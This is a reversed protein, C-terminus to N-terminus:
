KKEIQYPAYIEEISKNKRSPVTIQDSVALRYIFVVKDLDSNQFAGALAERLELIQQHADAGFPSFNQSQTTLHKLLTLSVCIPQFALNNKTAILWIKEMLLGAELISQNSKDQVEIFGIAASSSYLAQYYNQFAFGKKWRRLQRAVLPESLVAFATQMAQPLQLDGLKLGWADVNNVIGKYFDRHMEPHLLAIKEARGLHLALNKISSEDEILVNTLINSLKIETLDNKFTTPLDTKISPLRNTKRLEIENSFNAISKESKRFAIQALLDAEDAHPFWLVQTEFGLSLGKQIINEIAAGCSLRQYAMEPDLLNETGVFRLLLNKGFQQLKWAQLNGFSPAKEAAEVLTLLQEVELDSPLEALKNETKLPKPYTITESTEEFLLEKKSDGILEDIDVYFRGSGTFDNLLMRRSVDATIGGGMTVASALQPWTTITQQMELMSARLKPSTTSLGLIDFMYPIKEENTTLSKLKAVDLHDLIGHLIPRNPELDFREVDVMCRDSAEMIVPVQLERAKYRALVKIDFGDSEEVVLDLKGGDLFFADMNEETLGEPFCRIKIYPDLEAIERAVSYVKLQGLNQVGTRIRNLNTLELADFDALRLEGCIREMAMTVSVSQGVSLGIVGVKKQSLLDREEPTIKYQNRSTRVEVFEKEDLLHVLRNSWPYFVWVGYQWEPIEGLHSDVLESIQEATLRKSPNSIKVLESLQSRLQDVVTLGSIKLIEEIRDNDKSNQIRLFEPQFIKSALSSLKVLQSLQEKSSMLSNM